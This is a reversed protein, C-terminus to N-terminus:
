DRDEESGDRAGQELVAVSGDDEPVEKEEEEGPSFWSAIKKRKKWMFDTPVVLREM